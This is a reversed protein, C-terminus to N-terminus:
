GAASRIRRRVAALAKSCTELDFMGIHCADVELVLEAALWAYAEKRTMPPNDFIEAGRGWLQDFLDHTKARATRLAANVLSGLPEPTGPHCGVFADCPRCRWFKKEALDTRHPYLVTGDVHESASGCYPCIPADQLRRGLFREGSASPQNIQWAVEGLPVFRAKIEPVQIEGDVKKVGTQVRVIEDELAEGNEFKVTRGSAFKWATDRPHKVDIFVGSALLEPIMRANESYTKVFFADKGPDDNVLNMTLTAFPEPFEGLAFLSLCLRGNSSYHEEVLVIEDKDFSFKFKKDKFVEPIKTAAMTKKEKM